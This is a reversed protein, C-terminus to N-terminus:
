EVHPTYGRKEMEQILDGIADPCVAVLRPSFQHILHSRLSTNSLLEQLAYDDAMEILAIADYVHLKGYNESWAAMREQWSSPVTTGCWQSLRDLLSEITLGQELALLVGEATIQYVFREPTTEELQGIMHLLDHLQAPAQGPVLTVTLDDKLQVTGHAMARPEAEVISSRRQLAFSGVPTVKFAVLQGDDYGLSVAGLWYLPGELITLVFRGSSEQWDEFTTGFQKKTKRSELWWVAPDSLTRVLDPKIDFIAKLFGDLSIWRDEEITSLFRLVTQRGTSWERYLDQPKFSTYMLNRRLRIDDATRRLVDMESWTTANMWTYMVLYMQLTTPLSLIREFVEQRHSIPQGPEADVVDMNELLAYYFESEEDTHGAKARLVHRDASRLHYPPAPVTLSANYMNYPTKKRQTIEDVEEPLHDWGTFQPWNDEISQRTRTATLRPSHQTIYDWVAYLAQITATAPRERVQIDDIKPEPYFPVFGPRPPISVRVTQPLLYYVMNDRKFTLLLGQQSLDMLQEHITRRALNAHRRYLANAINESTFGYGPSLILNLYTLLQQPLDDLASIQARTSEPDSLQVALEEIIPEKRTGGIEINRRHALERLEKITQHELMQRYEDVLDPGWQLPNPATSTQPRTYGEFTDPEQVWALLVAGVHACIGPGHHGCTCGIYIDGDEVSVEVAHFEPASETVVGYLSAGEISLESVYGGQLYQEAEIQAADELQFLIEDRTLAYLRQRDSELSM